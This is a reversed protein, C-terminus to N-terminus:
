LASEGRRQLMIRLVSECLDSTVPLLHSPADFVEELSRAEEGYGRRGLVGGHEPSGVPQPTEAMSPMGDLGLGLHFRGQGAERAAANRGAADMFVEGNELGANGVPRCDVGMADSTDVTAPLLVVRRDNLVVSLLLQSNMHAPAQANSPHHGSNTRSSPSNDTAQKNDSAGDVPRQATDVPPATAPLFLLRTATVAEGTLWSRKATSCEPGFYAVLSRSRGPLTIAAGFIPQTPHAAVDAVEALACWELGLTLLNWVCICGCRGGHASVLHPSHMLFCLHTVSSQGPDVPAVLVPGLSDSDPNWLSISSAGGTALVSGDPSYAVASFPLDAYVAPIHSHCFIPYSLPPRPYLRM